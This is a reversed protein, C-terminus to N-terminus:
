HRVNLVRWIQSSSDVLKVTDSGKRNQYNLAGAAMSTNTFSIVHQPLSILPMFYAPLFNWLLYNRESVTVECYPQKLWRVVSSWRPIPRECEPRAKFQREKKLQYLLYWKKKIKKEKWKASVWKQTHHTYDLSYFFHMLWCILWM